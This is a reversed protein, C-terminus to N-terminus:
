GGAGAMAQAIADAFSSGKISLAAENMKRLSGPTLGLEKQYALIDKRLSEMILAEASKKTGSDTIEVLRIDGSDLRDALEAYRDMMGACIHVTENFEDKYTGLTKMSEILKGETKTM